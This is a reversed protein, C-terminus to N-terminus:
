GEDRLTGSCGRRSVLFVGLLCRRQLIDLIGFQSLSYQLMMLSLMPM